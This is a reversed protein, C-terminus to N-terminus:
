EGSKGIIWRGDKQIVTQSPSLQQVSGDCLGVINHISCRSYVVEPHKESAGPSLIEYRTSEDGPCFTIKETNLEAKMANFDAPLVDGHDNAWLRAALGVQKLHNVCKVRSARNFFDEELKPPPAVQSKLSVRLQQNQERLAALEGSQARLQEVEARLRQVDAADKRLQDLEASLAQARTKDAATSQEAIASLRLSENAHKLEAIRNTQIGFVVICGIFWLGFGLAPLWRRFPGHNTAAARPLEINSQLEKLLGAPMKVRPAKQLLKEISQENM